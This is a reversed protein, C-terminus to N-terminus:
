WLHGPRWRKAVSVTIPLLDIRAQQNVAAVDSRWKIMEDGLREESAWLNRGKQHFRTVVEDIIADEIEGPLTQAGLSGGPYVSSAQYPTIFGGAYTVRWYREGTGFLPNSMVGYVHNHSSLWGSRRFVSGVTSSDLRYTSAGEATNSTGDDAITAISTISAVPTRILLLRTGGTGELDEVAAANYEFPRGAVSAFAYSVGNILREITRDESLDTIGLIERVEHTRALAYNALPM